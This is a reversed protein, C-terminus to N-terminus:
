RFPTPDDVDLQEPDLAARAYDRWVGADLFLRYLDPDLHRNDRMRQMIGLAESIKLPTKYPRERATLAEFVDAIAMIRAPISMQERTLGRPFGTGDMREHHGGAYEPVRRLKRPFPLSELMDLTVDMHSNIIRREEETLTGRTICLNSVEDDSLLPRTEGRADVWPREAIRRVRAEDEAAMTEGGINIRELFTLDAELADIDTQRRLRHEPERDPDELCDRLYRREVESRAASFRAAVLEIRDHLGHLKTAKDLVSDPIALKGCDHLWAAVRLEYWEDEDLQFDAFEGGDECAARALLETLLPVRECHASTHSSKADIARAFVKVFADLLDKLERVLMLNNLAIGAYGGLAELLARTRAPFPGPGREGRANVLQLVGVVRGEHNTLPVLLLSVVRTVLGPVLRARDEDDLAPATLHLAEGGRVTRVAPHGAHADDLPLRPQDPGPDAGEEEGDLAQRACELWEQHQEERRLWLVGAEARALALAEELVTRSLPALDSQANIQRAVRLLPPLQTGPVRELKSM